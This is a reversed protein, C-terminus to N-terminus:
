IEPFFCLRKGESREGYIKEGEFKVTLSHGRFEYNKIEKQFFLPIKLECNEKLHFLYLWEGQVIHTIGKKSLCANIKEREALEPIRIRISIPRDTVIKAAGNNRYPDSFHLEPGDYDFLLNISIIEGHRTVRHKWAQCLGSVGGATIDWNFSIDSGPEYEHGYPCPFGFAGEMRGALHDLADDESTEDTLFSVDLLQAPLIHSRLMKEAKGYYGEFGNKGLYLCAEMLDCSNNIEGVLDTRLDNELCWGFELGIQRGGTEIFEKVHKLIKMDRVCDGVMAIGCLMATTSHLHRGFTEGDYSGDERWLSRFFINTLRLAQDLAEPLFNESYMRMLAQIYRGLTPAFRLGENQTMAGCMCSVGSDRQFETTKWLGTDFDTYQDVLQILAKAGQLARQDEPNIRLLGIFSYMMERFNHLDCVKVTELDALNLNLMVHWPNDFVKYAWFRLNDFVEPSIREGTGRQAATLAELRRGAMHAASFSAHHHNGRNEGTIHNEFYPLGNKKPDTWTLMPTIGKRIALELDCDNVSVFKPYDM